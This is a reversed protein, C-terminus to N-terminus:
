VYTINVSNSTGDPDTVTVGHPGAARAPSVLAIKTDSIITWDSAPIAAGGAVAVATATSFGVGTLVLQDGGAAAINTNPTVSTLVPPTASIAPIIQDLAPESAINFRVSFGAADNGMSVDNTKTAVRGPFVDMSASGPKDGKRMIIINGQADKPLMAEIEESDLDEYFGISSDSASDTGPISSEFTSGLDPTAVSNNELGWGSMERVFPTLDFAAAIEARTVNQIDDLAAAFLIKSVGRRIFRRQSM